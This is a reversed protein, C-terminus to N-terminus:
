HPKALPAVTVSWGHRNAWLRLAVLLESASCEHQLTAAVCSAREGAAFEARVLKGRPIDGLAALDLSAGGASLIIAISSRTPM